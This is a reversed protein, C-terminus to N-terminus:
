QGEPESQSSLYFYLVVHPGDSSGDDPLVEVIEWGAKQYYPTVEIWRCAYIARIDANPFRQELKDFMREIAAARTFSAYCKWPHWTEWILENIAAIAEEITAVQIPTIPGPM